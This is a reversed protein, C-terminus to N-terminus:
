VVTLYFKESIITDAGERRMLKGLRGWVQRARRINSLVEPCDNDTQHLVRGLYKFPDLGEFCETRDDGM